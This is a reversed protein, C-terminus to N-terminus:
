RGHETLLAARLSITKASASCTERFLDIDLLVSAVGPRPPPVLAENLSLTASLDEQPILLQMFYGLLGQPLLPSVEPVTRLYEKLDGMPLPLDLRNIYRVAVRTVVLPQVAQRYRTWWAKAEDRFSEWSEYPALRSLTFGNLRVQVIQREDTSIFMYGHHEQSGVAAVEPQMSVRGEFHMINRRSPYSSEHGTHLSVLADVTVTEPLQVQIDIVAETLPPHTYHPPAYMSSATSLM